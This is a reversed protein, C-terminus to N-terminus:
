KAKAEKRVQEAYEKVKKAKAEAEKQPASKSGRKSLQARQKKFIGSIEGLSVDDRLQQDANRGQVNGAQTNEKGLEGDRAAAAKLSKHKALGPKVYLVKVPFSQDQASSDKAMDFVALTTQNAIAKGLVLSHAKVTREMSDAAAACNTRPMTRQLSGALAGGTGCDQFVPAGNPKLLLPPQGQARM